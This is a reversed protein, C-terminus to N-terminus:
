CYGPLDVVGEEPWVSHPKLRAIVEPRSLERLSVRGIRRISKQPSAAMKEALSLAYPHLFTSRKGIQRVAWDIAKSVMPRSDDGYHEALPLIAQFIEDPLAKARVAMRAALSFGARRVYERPDASWRFVKQVALPHTAIEGCFLDCTDWSDLGGAIEDLQEGSLEEARLLFFALLHAEHCSSTRLLELATETDKGTEKAVARLGKVSIGLANETRIGFRAMGERAVPDAMSKLRVLLAEARRAPPETPLTERKRKM